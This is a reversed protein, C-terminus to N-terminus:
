LVFEGENCSRDQVVEGVDGALQPHLLDGEDHGGGEGRGASDEDEEQVVTVLEQGGHGAVSVRIVEHDLPGLIQVLVPLLQHEPHAPEDTKQQQGSM